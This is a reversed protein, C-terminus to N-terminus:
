SKKGFREERIRDEDDGYKREIIQSTESSNEDRGIVM